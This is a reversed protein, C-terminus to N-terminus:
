ILVHKKDSKTEIKMNELKILFGGGVNDSGM